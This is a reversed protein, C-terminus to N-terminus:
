AALEPSGESRIPKYAIGPEIRYLHRVQELPQPLLAEFDADTLWHARRGRRHADRIVRRLETAHARTFAKSPDPLFSLLYASASLSGIGSSRTQSYTFALVGSEGVLDRGYGTLVHLLDHMERLRDYYIKRPDDEKGIGMNARAREDESINALDQASIAEEEVWALYTRGFSGEPMRGLGARDNLADLLRTKRNLIAQGSSSNWFRKFEREGSKGEFAGIMRIAAATDDPDRTSAVFARWGERWHIKLPIDQPLLPFPPIETNVRTPSLPTPAMFRIEEISQHLIDYRGKTPNHTDRPRM